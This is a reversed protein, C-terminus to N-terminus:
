KLNPALPVSITDSEAIDRKGTLQNGHLTETASIFNHFVDYVVKIRDKLEEVEDLTMARLEKGYLCMTIAKVDDDNTHTKQEKVESGNLLWDTDVGNEKLKDYINDPINSFKIWNGITQPAVGLIDALWGQTKNLRRLERKLKYGTTETNIEKIIYKNSLLMDGEGFKIFMPNIDFKEKLESVVKSGINKRKEYGSFMAPSKGLLKTINPLSIFYKDAVLELRELDKNIM